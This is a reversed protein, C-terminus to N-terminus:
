RHVELEETYNRKGTYCYGPSLLLGRIHANQKMKSTFITVFNIKSNTQKIKKSLYIIGHSEVKTGSKFSILYCLAAFISSYHVIENVITM